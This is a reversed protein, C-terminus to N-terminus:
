LRNDYIIAKILTCIILVCFHFEDREREFTNYWKKCRYMSYQLLSIIMTILYLFTAIACNRMVRGYHRSYEILVQKKSGSEMQEVDELFAASHMYFCFSMIGLMIIGWISLLTCVISCKQGCLPMKRERERKETGEKLVEEEM